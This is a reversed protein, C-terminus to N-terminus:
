QFKGIAKKPSHNRVLTTSGFAGPRLHSIIGHYSCFYRCVFVQQICFQKLFISWPQPSCSPKLCSRLLPTILSNLTIITGWLQRRSGGPWFGLREDVRLIYFTRNDFWLRFHYLRRRIHYPTEFSRATRSSRRSVRVVCSSPPNM